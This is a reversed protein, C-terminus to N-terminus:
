DKWLYKKVLYQTLRFLSWGTLVGLLMGGIVDGPYHVGLYVRSYSVALAWLALLWRWKRSTGLLLMMFIALAAHNAAHSSVFGYSNSKKYPIRAHLHETNCPRVRKFLPKFVRSSVLDSVAFSLVMGIVFWIGNYGKIKFILVVFLVYLPIWTYPNSLLTMINDLGASSWDRNIKVFLAEDLRILPNM